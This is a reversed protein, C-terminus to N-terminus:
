HKKNMPDKAFWYNHAFGVPVAGVAFTPAVNYGLSPHYMALSTINNAVMYYFPSLMAGILAWDRWFDTKIRDGIGKPNLYNDVLHSAGRYSGVFAANYATVAYLGRLLKGGLTANDILPFTLDGLLVMHPIIANVASYTTLAGDLSDYFSKGKALNGIMGGGAFGAGVIVGLSASAGILPLAWTSLATTAAAMGLKWALRGAKRIFGKSEKDKVEDELGM